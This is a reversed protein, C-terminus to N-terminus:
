KTLQSVLATTDKMKFQKLLCEKPNTMEEITKAVVVLDDYVAIVVLGNLANKVYVCPDATTREFNISKLYDSL